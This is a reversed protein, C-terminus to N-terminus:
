LICLPRDVTYVRSRFSSKGNGLERNGCRPRRKSPAGHKKWLKELTDELANRGCLRALPDDSCPM